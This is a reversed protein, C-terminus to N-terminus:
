LGIHSARLQGATQAARTGPYDQVVMDYYLNAAQFRGTKHYYRAVTLQKEAMQETIMSVTNGVSLEEADEPYVALFRGYYSRATALNSADFLPRREPPPSNYIAHKAKAMGLIADKAVRGTKYQLSIEWWKLYEDNYMQRQRYSDAVALAARLGLISNIGARDTIKEMIRVGEAYGKLKIFRLVVKKQGGLYATGIAFQRDLVVSQLTSLPYDKM